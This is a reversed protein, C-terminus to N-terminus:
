FVGNLGFSMGGTGVGPAVWPRVRAAEPEPAKKGFPPAKWDTFIAVVGTAVAVVGTVALLANTRREKSLGEQFPACDRTKGACEDRVKDPGPNSQTDLGSWVTVGSLIVTAGLGGLFFWPSLGKSPAVEVVPASSAVPPAASPASSVVPPPLAPAELTVAESGGKQGDIKASKSRGASWGASLSHSGPELYITVSATPEHTALKGDVTLACAPSCSVKVRHNLKEYTKIVDQAQGRLAADDPYRALAAAAVTAARAGQKALRRARLANGLVMPNPALRDAAEFLEAAEDFRGSKFARSGEDFTEAAKQLKQPDPEEAGGVGSHLAFAASLLVVVVARVRM